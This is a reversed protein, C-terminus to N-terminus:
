RKAKRKKKANVGKVIDVIRQVSVQMQGSVELKQPLVDIYGLDKYQNFKSDVQRQLLQLASIKTSDSKTSNAIKMTQNRIARIDAHLDALRDEPSSMRFLELNRKRIIKRDRRIQRDSVGLQEAIQLPSYGNLLAFEVKELRKAIEAKNLQPM